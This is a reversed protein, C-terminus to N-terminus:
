LCVKCKCHKKVLGNTGAHEFPNGFFQNIDCTKDECLPGFDTVPQVDIDALIGDDDLEADHDIAPAKQLPSM